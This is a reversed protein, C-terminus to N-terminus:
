IGAEYTLLLSCRDEMHAQGEKMDESQLIRVMHRSVVQTGHYPGDEICQMINGVPRVVVLDGDAALWIKFQGKKTNLIEGHGGVGWM